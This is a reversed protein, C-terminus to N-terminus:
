GRPSELMPRFAALTLAIEAPSLNPRLLLIPMAAGAALWRALRGRAEAPTGYVALLELLEEAEAPVQGTFKPANAALVAAVAKDHGQATLADRYVSGMTTLYFAVFWAAGERAAAPDEAVVTPVSPCVIPVRDPHGGRAAGERLLDVGRALRTSPYFFPMWGDALEGALRTAADGLAALYIPV